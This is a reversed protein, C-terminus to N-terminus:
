LIPLCLIVSQKHRGSEGEFVPGDSLDGEESVLGTEMCLRGEDGGRVGDGFVHVREQFVGLSLPSLADDEVLLMCAAQFTVEPGAKYM